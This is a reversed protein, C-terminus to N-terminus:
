AIGAPKDKAPNLDEKEIELFIRTLRSAERYFPHFAFKDLDDLFKFVWNGIHGDFFERQLGRDRLAGDKDGSEWASAEKGAIFGMFGLEVGIHDSLTNSDERATVGCMQYFERAKWEPDQCLLGKIRVSEYPSVGGPLVFLAAYEEALAELLAGSGGPHDLAGTLDAGLGSLVAAVDNSKLIELLGASPEARFIAALLLYLRARGKAASANESLDKEM